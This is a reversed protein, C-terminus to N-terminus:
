TAVVCSAEDFFTPKVAFRTWDLVWTCACSSHVCMCACQWCPAVRKASPVGDRKTARVRRECRHGNPRAGCVVDLGRELTSAHLGAEHRCVCAQRCAPWTYRENCTDDHNQPHFWADDHMQCLHMIMMSKCGHHRCSCPVTDTCVKQQM